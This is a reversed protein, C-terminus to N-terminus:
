RPRKAKSRNEKSSKVINTKKDIDMQKFKAYLLGTKLQVFRNEGKKGKKKKTKKGGNLRAGGVRGILKSKRKRTARFEACIKTFQYAYFHHTSLRAPFSHPSQRALRPSRRRRGTSPRIPVSSQCRPFRRHKGRPFSLTKLGVGPKPFERSCRRLRNAHSHDRNQFHEQRAIVPMDLGGSM